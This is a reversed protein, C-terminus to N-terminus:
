KAKEKLVPISQKKESLIRERINDFERARDTRLEAARRNVLFRVLNSMDLGDMEAVTEVTAKIDDTVRIQLFDGKRKRTVVFYM